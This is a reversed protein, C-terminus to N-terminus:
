QSSHCIRSSSFAALVSKPDTSKTLNDSRVSTSTESIFFVNLSILKLGDASVAKFIEKLNSM